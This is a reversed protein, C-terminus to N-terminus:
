HGQEGLSSQGRRNIGVIHFALVKAQASDFHMGGERLFKGAAASRCEM